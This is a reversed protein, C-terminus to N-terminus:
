CASEHIPPNILRVDVIRHRQSLSLAYYANDQRDKEARGSGEELRRADLAQGISNRTAADDGPPPAECVAKISHVTLSYDGEQAGFFSRIMLSFRKIEKKDLPDVDKQLKGRYTPNFADWPLFVTKDHTDDPTDQPPLEFDVEWSITAKDRDNAADAKPM